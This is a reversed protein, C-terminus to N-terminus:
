PLLLQQCRYSTATLTPDQSAAEVKLLLQSLGTPIAINNLLLGATATEAATGGALPTGDPQLLTVKFGRLGSGERQAACTVTVKTKKASVAMAFHDLDAGAPSLDGDIGFLVIGNGMDQGTLSEPTQLGGNTADAKEVQSAPYDSQPTHILVYFDRAGLKANDSQVYLYHPKDVALPVSLAAPATAPDAPNDGYNVQDLEALHKGSADTPDVLWVRM